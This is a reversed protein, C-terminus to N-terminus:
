DWPVPAPAAGAPPVPASPVDPASPRPRPWPVRPLASAARDRRCPRLAAIPRSPPIPAPWRWRGPRRGPASRRDPRRVSAPPSGRGRGAFVPRRGPGPPPPVPRAPISGRRAAARANGVDRHLHHGTRPPQEAQGERSQGVQRGMAVAEGGRGPTARRGGRPILRRGRRSGRGGCSRTGAGRRSPTSRRRGTAPAPPCGTSRAPGPAPRPPPPAARRAPSGGCGHRAEPARPPSPAADHGRPEAQRQTEIGLQHFGPEPHLFALRHAVPVVAPDGADEGRPRHFGEGPAARGRPPPPSGRWGQGRDPTAPPAHRRTALQHALRHAQRGVDAGGAGDGDQGLRLARAASPARAPLSLAPPAPWRPRVCPLM